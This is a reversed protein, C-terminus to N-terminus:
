CGWGWFSVDDKTASEGYLLEFIETVFMEVELALTILVARLDMRFYDTENLLGITVPLSIGYFIAYKNLVAVLHGLMDKLTEHRM